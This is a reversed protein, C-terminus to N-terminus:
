ETQRGTQDRFDLSAPKIMYVLEEFMQNFHKWERLYKDRYLEVYKLKIDVSILNLTKSIM